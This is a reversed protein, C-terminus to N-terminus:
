WCLKSAHMGAGGAAAPRVPRCRRRTAFSLMRKM